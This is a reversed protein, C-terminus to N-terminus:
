VQLQFPALKNQAAYTDLDSQDFPTIALIAVTEGSGNFSSAALTDLQYAHQLEQPALPKMGSQAQPPRTPLTSGDTPYSTLGVIATIAQALQEPVSPDQDPAVIT